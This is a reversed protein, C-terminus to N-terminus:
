RIYFTGSHSLFFWSLWFLGPKASPPPSTPHLVLPIKDVSQGETGTPSCPFLRQGGLTRGAGCGLGRPSHWAPPSARPKRVCQEHSHDRQVSHFDGGPSSFCLGPAKLWWATTKLSNRIRDNSSSGKEKRGNFRVNHWLGCDASCVSQLHLCCSSQETCPM